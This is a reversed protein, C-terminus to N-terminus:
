YDCVPGVMDLIWFQERGQVKRQEYLFYKLFHPVFGFCLSTGLVGFKLNCVTTLKSTKPSSM